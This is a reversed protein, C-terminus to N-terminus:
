TRCARSQDLLRCLLADVSILAIKKNQPNATNLADIFSCSDKVSGKGQQFGPIGLDSGVGEFRLVMKGMNAFHHIPRIPIM